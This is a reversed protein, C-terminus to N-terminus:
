REVGVRSLVFFSASTFWDRSAHNRIQIFGGSGVADHRHVKVGGLNLAKEVAWNVMSKSERDQNVVETTGDVNVVDCDDRLVGAQATNRLSPSFADPSSRASGDMLCPMGALWSFGFRLRYNTLNLTSGTHQNVVHNIRTASNRTCYFNEFVGSCCVDDNRCRM